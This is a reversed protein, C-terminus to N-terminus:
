RAKIGARQNRLRRTRRRQGPFLLCGCIRTGARSPFPVYRTSVTSRYVFQAHSDATIDVHSTCTLSLRNELEGTYGRQPLAWSPIATAAVVDARAMALRSQMPSMVNSARLRLAVAAVSVGLWARASAPGVAPALYLTSAIPVKTSTKVTPAATAVRLESAGSAM